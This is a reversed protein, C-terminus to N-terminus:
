NCDVPNVNLRHAYQISCVCVSIYYNILNSNEM